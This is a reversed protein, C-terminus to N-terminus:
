GRPHPPSSNPRYSDVRRNVQYPSPNPRRRGPTDRIPGPSSGGYSPRRAGGNDSNSKDPPRSPHIAPRPLLNPHLAPLSVPFRQTIANEDKLHANTQFDENATPSSAPPWSSLPSSSSLPPINPPISSSSSSLNTSPSPNVAPIFTSPSQTSCPIDLSLTPDNKFRKRPDNTREILSIAPLSPTGSVPCTQSLRRENALSTPESVRRAIPEGLKSKETVPPPCRKALVGGAQRWPTGSSGVTKMPNTNANRCDDRETKYRDREAKYEDRQACVAANDEIHHAIKLRLVAVEAELDLIRFEHTRTRRALVDNQSSPADNEM